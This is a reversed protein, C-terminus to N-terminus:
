YTTLVVPLACEIKAVDRGARFLDSRTLGALCGLQTSELFLLQYRKDARMCLRAPRGISGVCSNNGESLKRIMFRASYKVVRM